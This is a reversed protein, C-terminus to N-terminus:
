WNRPNTIRFLHGPQKFPDIRVYHRSGHWTYREGTLLDELEIASHWPLGLQEPSLQLVAEQTHYPNMNVAALVQNGAAWKRYFLFNGNENPLFEIQSFQQLAPNERRIRNIRRM